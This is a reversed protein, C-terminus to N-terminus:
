NDSEGRKKADTKSKTIPEDDSEIEPLIESKLIAQWKRTNHHATNHHPTSHQPTNQKQQTTKDQRTKEQRTREQRTRVCMHQTNHKHQSANHKTSKHQTNSHQTTKARPTPTAHQNTRMSMWAQQHSKGPIASLELRPVVSTRIDRTKQKYREKDRM